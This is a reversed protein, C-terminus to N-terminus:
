DASGSHEPRGRLGFGAVATALLTAGAAAAFVVAPPWTEALLGGLAFGAGIGGLLCTAGWTFSEAVMGPPALRSILVSQTSIVTAMPAAAIVGALALVVLNDIPVMLLIGAAMLLTAVVFQRAPPVRWEHSGYYLAGAASGISAVALIVGASAPAEQVKAVAIVALEFLAFALSYLITAAFVVVLAGVHLPGLLNRAGGPESRWRRVPGARAFLWGGFGACVATFAVAAVVAGGAAFAAVAAPGAIFMCEIIASDLSYATPVLGPESVLRPLMARVCITVPPFSGGAVLAAGALLAVPLGAYLAAVLVGMAVPYVAATVLLVPRPGIRDIMRGILPAMAALGFVYCGTVTGARAFSGTSAQVFLLLALSAMGIPLRGVLSAAFLNRVDRVGLLREYRALSIM